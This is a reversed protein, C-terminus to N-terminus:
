QMMIDDVEVRAQAEVYRLSMGMDKRTDKFRGVFVSQLLKVNVCEM